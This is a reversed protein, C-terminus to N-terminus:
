NELLVKYIWKQFGAVATYVGPFRPTACSHGWSVIGLVRGECVLPGGSDGQCADKGGASFGACLMDKTIAGAYSANCKWAPLVPLYVGRLTDSTRGGVASTHGWGSVQCLRGERVPSGRQPLPVVSVYPSYALPRSLKILMIDANKSVPNYDPHALMRAPRFVQETGEFASLSYEGAVILMQHASTKCHAATLVWSRSILAGGCFHSGTKRKLSVLYKASRPPVVYGGIIRQSQDSSETQALPSEESESSFEAMEGQIADELRSNEPATGMAAPFLPLFFILLPASCTM